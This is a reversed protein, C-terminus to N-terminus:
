RSQSTAQSRNTSQGQQQTNNTATSNQRQGAVPKPPEVSLFAVPAFFRKQGILYDVGRPTIKKIEISGLTDGERIKIVTGNDWQAFAYRQDGAALYGVPKIAAVGNRHVDLNRNLAQVAAQQDAEDGQYANAEIRNLLADIQSAGQASSLAPLAPIVPLEPIKPATEAIATASFFALSLLLARQM